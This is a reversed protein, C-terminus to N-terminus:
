SLGAEQHAASLRRLEAHRPSPAGLHLDLVILKRPKGALTMYELVQSMRPFTNILVVDPVIRDILRGFPTDIDPVATGDRRARLVTLKQDLRRFAFLTLAVSILTIAVLVTLVIEAAPRAWSDVVVYTTTDLIYILFLGLVGWYIAFELCVRGHLNLPKKSYDWFVSKFAKEMVLSATYELATCLVASLAFILLPNALHPLLVLSVLVGGLGYIPSLPLYLLGCRSEIVGRYERAYCFIMEVIVGYVSYILFLWLCFYLYLGFTGSYM